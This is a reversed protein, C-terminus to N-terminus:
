TLQLMDYLTIRLVVDMKLSGASTHGIYSCHFLMYCPYRMVKVQPRYFITSPVTSDLSFLRSELRQFSTLVKPSLM